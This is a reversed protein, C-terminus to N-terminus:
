RSGLPSIRLSNISFSLVVRQRWFHPERALFPLILPNRVEDANSGDNYFEDKYENVATQNGWIRLMKSMLELHETLRYGEGDLVCTCVDTSPPDAKIHRCNIKTM